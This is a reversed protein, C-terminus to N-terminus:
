SALFMVSPRKSATSPPLSPPLFSEANIVCRTRAVVSNGRVAPVKLARPLFSPEVARICTLAVHYHSPKYTTPTVMRATCGDKRGWAKFTDASMWVWNVRSCLFKTHICVPTHIQVIVSVGAPWGETQKRLQACIRNGHACARIVTRPLVRPGPTNYVRFGEQWRAQWRACGALARWHHKQRTLGLCLAINYSELGNTWDM